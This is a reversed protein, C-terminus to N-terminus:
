VESGNDKMIDKIQRQLEMMLIEKISDRIMAEDKAEDPFQLIIQITENGFNVNKHIEKVPKRKSCDKINITNVSLKDCEMIKIVMGKEFKGHSFDEIYPNKM